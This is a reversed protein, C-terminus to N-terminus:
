PYLPEVKGGFLHQCAQMLMEATRAISQSDISHHGQVIFFVDRSGLEIKTKEVQRVELRCLIENSEDVYAYEGPPVRAPNSAGLPWFAESGRTLRLEIDGNVQSLDHAGIALGSALSVANYVDVIGNVRPIDNKARFRALLSAPAAILKDPKVSVSAHLGCFGRLTASNEMDDPVCALQSEVFARVSPETSQVNRMQRINYYVGRVGLEYVSKSFVFRM